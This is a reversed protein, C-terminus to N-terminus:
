LPYLDKAPYLDEAPFLYKHDSVTSTQSAGYASGESRLPAVTLKVANSHDGDIAMIRVKRVGAALIPHWHPVNILAWDGPLYTGLKPPQDARVTVSWQEWTGSGADLIQNAGAQLVSMDEVDKAAVDAEVYPYGADLLTRNYATALLMDREQGSGPQFSRSALGAGDTDVGFGTVGSKSVATDWLPLEGKSTLLPDTDTGTEMVWEVYQRDTDKFRPRFRIDPGRQVATLDRLLEGTWSLSYGPYNRENVGVVPAPLVIPLYGDPNDQISIRVLEAAISGLTRNTIEIESWPIEAGKLIDKWNLAKRKDLISWIGTAPVSYTENSPDYSGKGAPGAELVVGDYSCGIFQKLEGTAAGVNLRELEKARPQLKIEVSGADNSRIGWSLGSVPLENTIKGTRQEGAFVRFGEGAVVM